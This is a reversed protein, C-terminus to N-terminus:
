RRRCGPAGGGPPGRSTLEAWEDADERQLAVDPLVQARELLGSRARQRTRCADGLEVADVGQDDRAALRRRHGLERM